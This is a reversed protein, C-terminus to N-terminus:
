APIASRSRLLKLYWEPVTARRDFKYTDVHPAKIPTVRSLSLLKCETESIPVIAVLVVPISKGDVDRCFRLMRKAPDSLENNVVGTAPNFASKMLVAMKLASVSKIHTLMRHSASPLRHIQASRVQQPQDPTATSLRKRSIM